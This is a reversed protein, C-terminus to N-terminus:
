NACYISVLLNIWTTSYFSPVEKSFIQNPSDKFWLRLLKRLNMENPLPIALNAAFTLVALIGLM